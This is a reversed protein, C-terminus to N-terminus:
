SFYAPSDLSATRRATDRRYAAPPTKLICLLLEKEIVYRKLMAKELAQEIKTLSLRAEVTLERPSTLHSDGKLVDYLPQLEINPIHLYPRLWNIDGLLKQFDNLTKLHDKRLEVKQPLIEHPTILAGLYEGVTGQQVKEPAIHLCHSKLVEVM